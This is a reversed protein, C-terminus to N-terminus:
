GLRRKGKLPPASVYDDEVPAIESLDVEMDKYEDKRLEPSHEIPHYLPAVDQIYETYEDIKDFLKLIEEADEVYKSPDEEIMVLRMVKKIINLIDM